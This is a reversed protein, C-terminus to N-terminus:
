RILWCIGPNWNSRNYNGVAGKNMDKVEELVEDAIDASFKSPAVTLGFNVEKELAEIEDDVSKSLTKLPSFNGSSM